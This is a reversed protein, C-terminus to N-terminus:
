SGCADIAARHAKGAANMRTLLARTGLGQAAAVEAIAGDWAAVMGAGQAKAARYITGVTDYLALDDAGIEAGLADTACACQAETTASMDLCMGTADARAALPAVALLAALIRTM